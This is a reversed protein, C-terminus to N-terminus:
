AAWKLSPYRAINPDGSSHNEARQLYDALGPRWDKPDGLLLVVLHVEFVAAIRVLDKLTWPIQGRLRASVNQQKVGIRDALDKQMMGDRALLVRVMRSINEQFAADDLDIVATTVAM